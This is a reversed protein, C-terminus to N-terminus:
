RLVANSPNIGVPPRTVRMWHGHGEHDDFVWSCLCPIAPVSVLSALGTYGTTLDTRRQIEDDIVARVLDLHEAQVDMGAIQRDLVPNSAADKARYHARQVQARKVGVRKVLRHLRDWPVRRVREQLKYAMPTPCEEAAWYTQRAAQCTKRMLTTLRAKPDCLMETAVEYPMQDSEIQKM